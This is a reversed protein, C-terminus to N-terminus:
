GWISLLCFCLFLLKLEAQCFGGRSFGPSVTGRVPHYVPELGNRVYERVAEDDEWRVGKEDGGDGGDDCDGGIWLPEVSRITM